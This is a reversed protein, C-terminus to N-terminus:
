ALWQVQQEWSRVPGQRPLWDRNSKRSVPKISKLQESNQGFGDATLAHALDKARRIGQLNPPGTILSIVPIKSNAAGKLQAPLTKDCGGILVAADMPQANIMEETDMSMLNRYMMSTPSLFTEGLSITPFVIPLGGAMLVGRKVAEILEPMHRHCNNFGSGTDGIGVVTKGLIEKGYGMSAANARRLYLSFDMDGYNTLGRALGHQNKSM